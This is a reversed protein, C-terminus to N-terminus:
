FKMVNDAPNADPTIPNGLKIRTVPKTTKLTVPYLSSGNKWIDLNKFLKESTGDKYTVELYIPVPINGKREITITKKNMGQIGLDAYGPEFYCAKWFWNLDQGASRSYSYFMDYPTPHKGNWNKMFELTAKKFIEEGLLTELLMLNNCPKVYSLFDLYGMGYDVGFSMLPKDNMTGAFTSYFNISMAQLSMKDEKFKYENFQTFGEDMWMYSTENFGMYFPMYMHYVEHVIVANHLSAIPYNSNNVMMPFEMSAGNKSNNLFVTTHDYPFPVGPFSDSSWAVAQRTVELSNFKHISDYPHIINVLARRSTQKDVVLSNGEWVYDDAMAFAFDPVHKASFHWQNGKVVGTKYDERSIITVPSDGTKANHLKKLITEELVQSENECNGTAWVVYGAPANITVDYNNFDNYFELVGLHPIDDWGSIDDYVAVQPYWYGVFFANGYRGVRDIGTSNGDPIKYKWSVEIKATSDSKIPKHLRLYLITNERSVQRRDSIANSTIYPRGNIKLSEIEIGDNLVKESVPELRASSKKFLDPYIRICLTKLTDLSNNHFYVIESGTLINTSTDVSATITYDSSNQWYRPGPLGERTRTGESVAKQFERFEFLTSVQSTSPLSNLIGSLFLTLCILTKTKM